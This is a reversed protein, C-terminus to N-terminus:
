QKVPQSFYQNWFERSQQDEIQSEVTCVQLERLVEPFMPRVAPDKDWCKKILSVLTQPLQKEISAPIVPRENEVCVAQVLNSLVCLISM